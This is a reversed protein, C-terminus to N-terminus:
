RGTKAIYNDFLTKAGCFFETTGIYENQETYWDVKSGNQEYQFQWNQYALVKRM